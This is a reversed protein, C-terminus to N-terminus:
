EENVKNVVFRPLNGKLDVKVVYQALFRNPNFKDPTLIWGGIHLHARVIKTTPMYKPHMESTTVIIRRGDDDVFFTGLMVFDRASVGFQGKFKNYVFSSQLPLIEFEDVVELM